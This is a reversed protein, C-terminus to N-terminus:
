TWPRPREGPLAQFRRRVASAVLKEDAGIIFATQPVYLFLRIAELTDLITNPLCRDLDDIMVVLRSVKAEGLLEELEERFKKINHSVCSEAKGDLLETVDDDSVDALKDRVKAIADTAAVSAMAAMGDAGYTTALLAGNKISGGIIRLWDIRKLLRLALHKAKSGLTRRKVVEDVISEMLVAKADDYGEFLWGNFTLVCVDEASALEEGAM